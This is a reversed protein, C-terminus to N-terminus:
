RGELTSNDWHAREAEMRSFGLDNLIRDDLSRLQCREGGFTLLSKIYNILWQLGFARNNSMPMSGYHCSEIKISTM